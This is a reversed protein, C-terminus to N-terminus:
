YLEYLYSVPFDCDDCWENNMRLCMLFHICLLKYLIEEGMCKTRLGSNILILTNSLYSKYRLLIYAM